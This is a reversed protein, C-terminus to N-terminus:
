AFLYAIFISTCMSSVFSGFQQATKDHKSANKFSLSPLRLANLFIRESESECTHESEKCDFAVISRTMSSAVFISSFVLVRTENM